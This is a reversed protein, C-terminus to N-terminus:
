SYAGFWLGLHTCCFVSCLIFFLHFFSLFSSFCDEPREVQKTTYMELTINLMKQQSALIDLSQYLQFTSGQAHLPCSLNVSLTSSTSQGKAVHQVWLKNISQQPKFLRSSGITTWSSELHHLKEPFTSQFHYHIAKVKCTLRIDFTWHQSEGKIDVLDQREIVKICDTSCEFSCTIM